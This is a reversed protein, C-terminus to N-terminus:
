GSYVVKTERSKQPVAASRRIVDQQPALGRWRTTSPQSAPDSESTAENNNVNSSVDVSATYAQILVQAADVAGSDVSIKLANRGSHDQLFPDAGANILLSCASAKNSFVLFSAISLNSPYM